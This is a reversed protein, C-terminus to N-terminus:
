STTRLPLCSQKLIADHAALLRKFSRGDLFLLHLDTLATVTAQREGAEVLRAGTRRSSPARGASIETRPLDKVGGEPSSRAPREVL